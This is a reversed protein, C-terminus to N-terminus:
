SALICIISPRHHHIESLRGCVVAGVEVALSFSDTQLLAAKEQVMALQILAPAGKGVSCLAKGCPSEGVGRQRIEDSHYRFIVRVGCVRVTSQPKKVRSMILMLHLLGGTAGIACSRFLGSWAVLHCRGPRKEKSRGWEPPNLLLVSQQYVVWGSGYSPGRKM